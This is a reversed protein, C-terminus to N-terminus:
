SDTSTPKKLILRLAVRRSPNSGKIEYGVAARPGAPREFAGEYNLFLDGLAGMDEHRSGALVILSETKASLEDIETPTLLRRLDVDLSFPSSNHELLRQAIAELNQVAETAVRPNKPRTVEVYTWEDADRRVKFDPNM